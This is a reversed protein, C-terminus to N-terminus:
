ADGALYRTPTTGVEHRFANAFASPTSYGSATAAATVSRGEALLRTAQGVKKVDMVASAALGAGDTSELGPPVEEASPRRGPELAGDCDVAGVPGGGGSEGRAADHQHLLGGDGADAVEDEHRVGGPVGDAGHAVVGSGLLGADRSGVESGKRM